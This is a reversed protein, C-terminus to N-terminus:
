VDAEEGARGRRGVVSYFRRGCGFCFGQVLVARRGVEVVRSLVLGGGCRPCRVGRELLLGDLM